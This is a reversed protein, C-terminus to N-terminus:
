RCKEVEVCEAISKRLAARTSNVSVLVSSKFLSFGLVTLRKGSLFGMAELRSAAAGHASISKIIGSEGVQLDFVSM